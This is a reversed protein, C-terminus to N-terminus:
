KVSITTTKWKVFGRSFAGEPDANPKMFAVGDDGTGGGGACAVGAEGVAVKSGRKLIPLPLVVPLLMLLEGLGLLLM